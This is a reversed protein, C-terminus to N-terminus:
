ATQKARTEKICRSHADVEFEAVICEGLKSEFWNSVQRIAYKTTWGSEDLVAHCDHLLSMALVESYRLAIPRM